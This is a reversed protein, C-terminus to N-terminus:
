LDDRHMRLRRLRIGIVFQELAERTTAEEPLQSVGHAAELQRELEDLHTAHKEAEGCVLYMTETGAQKRDILESVQGLRFEENLEPLNAEITGTRLARIGTLYM